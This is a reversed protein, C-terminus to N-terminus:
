KCTHLYRTHLSPLRLASATNYPPTAQDEADLPTALPPPFQLNSLDPLSGTNNSIPIMHIGMPEQESHYINIGPVECSKPRAHMLPSLCNSDKKADWYDKIFSGDLMFSGDDPVGRRVTPPTNSLHYSDAQIASQHLASDSNTRRWSTEPPPSLYYPSSEMRKDFPRSRRATMHRNPSDRSNYCRTEFGDRGQKIDELSILASQLDISNNSIQNVNPLSGGGYPRLAPNIHLHDKQYLN